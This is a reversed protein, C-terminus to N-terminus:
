RRPLITLPALRAAAEAPSPLSAPTSDGQGLAVQTPAGYTVDVTQHREGFVPHRVIVERTGLPVAVDGMPLTGVRQGDVLVEAGVAGSVRLQGPPLTVTHTVVQGAPINLTVEGRYNLSKNVLEVKKRGSPVSLQGDETSGVKVGDIVLDLPLRSYVTLLGPGTTGAKTAAGANDGTAGTKPQRAAKPAKKPALAPEPAPVSAADAVGSQPPPAPRSWLLYGGTGIIAVAAAAAAAAAWVRWGPGDDV